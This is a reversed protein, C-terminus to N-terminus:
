GPGLSLFPFPEHPKLLHSIPQALLLLTAPSTAPGHLDHLDLRSSFSEFCSSPKPTLTTATNVVSSFRRLALLCSCLQSGLQSAQAASRKRPSLRPGPTYPVRLARQHVQPPPSPTLFSKHTNTHKHLRNVQRGMTSKASTPPHTPVLSNKNPLHIKLNKKTM